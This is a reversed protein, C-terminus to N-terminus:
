AWTVRDGVHGGAHGHGLTCYDRVTNHAVSTRWSWCRSEQIKKVMDDHEKQAAAVQETTYAVIRIGKYEIIAQTM